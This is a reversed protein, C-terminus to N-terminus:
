RSPMHTCAIPMPTTTTDRAEHAKRDACREESDARRHHVRGQEGGDAVDRVRRPARGRDADISEPAIEAVRDARQEGADDGVGEPQRGRHPDDCAQRGERTQHHGNSHGFGKRRAGSGALPSAGMSSLPAM